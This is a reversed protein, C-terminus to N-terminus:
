SAIQTTLMAVVISSYLTLLSIAMTAINFTHIPGKQSILLVGNPVYILIHLVELYRVHQPGITKTRKSPQLYLLEISFCTWDM